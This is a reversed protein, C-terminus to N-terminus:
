LNVGKINYAKKKRKGKAKEFCICDPTPKCPRKHKTDGIYDCHQLGFSTGCENAGRAHICDTHGCLFYSFAKRM